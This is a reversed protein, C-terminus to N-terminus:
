QNSAQNVANSIESNEPNEKRFDAEIIQGQKPEADDSEKRSEAVYYDFFNVVNDFKPQNEEQQKRLEEFRRTHEDVESRNLGNDSITKAMPSKFGTMYQFKSEDGRAEKAAEIIFAQKFKHQVEAWTTGNNLAYNMQHMLRAEAPATYIQTQIDNSILENKTTDLQEVKQKYSELDVIKQSSLAQKTDAIQRDLQNYFPNTAIYNDIRTDLDTVGRVYSSSFELEDLTKGSRATDLINRLDDSENQWRNLTKRNISAYDAVRGSIGDLPVSEKGSRAIHDLTEHKAYKLVYLEKLGREANKWTDIKDKYGSFDIAPTISSSPSYSNLRALPQYGNPEPRALEARAYAPM